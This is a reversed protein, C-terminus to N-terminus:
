ISTILPLKKREGDKQITVGDNGIAIVKSGDPALIDGVHVSYLSGKFSLVASWRSQIQSVSVVNYRVEQTTLVATSQAAQAAIINKNVETTPSAQPPSLLDIIKKESTATALKSTSIDKNTSAIDRQVRLMQLQSLAALYSAQTEQQLKLIAEENATLPKPQMIDAAVPTPPKVAGGMAGPEGATNKASAAAPKPLPQPTSGGGLLGYLQWLVILIVVVVIGATVKQRATMNALSNLKESAM